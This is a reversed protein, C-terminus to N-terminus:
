NAVRKNPSLDSLPTVRERKRQHLHVALIQKMRHSHLLRGISIRRTRECAQGRLVSPTFLRSAEHCDYAPDLLDARLSSSDVGAELIKCYEQFVGDWDPNWYRM